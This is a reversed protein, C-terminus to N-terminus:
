LEFGKFLHRPTLKMPLEIGVNEAHNQCRLFRHLM